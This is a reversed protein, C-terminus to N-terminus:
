LNTIQFATVQGDVDSDASWNSKGLYKNTRTVNDLKEMDTLPITVSSTTTM